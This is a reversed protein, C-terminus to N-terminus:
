FSLKGLIFFATKSKVLIQRFDNPDHRGPKKHQRVTRRILFAHRGSSFFRTKKKLGSLIVIEGGFFAM